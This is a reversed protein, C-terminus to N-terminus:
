QPDPLTQEGGCAPCNYVGLRPQVHAVVASCTGVLVTLLLGPIEFFAILPIGALVALVLLTVALPSTRKRASTRVVPVKCRPCAINARRLAAFDVPGAPQMTPQATAQAMPRGCTLCSPAMDSVSRGCDPCQVLAM